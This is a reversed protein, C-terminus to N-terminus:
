KEAVVKNGGRKAKTMKARMKRSAFSLLRGGDEEVVEVVEM